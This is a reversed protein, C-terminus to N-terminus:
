KERAEETETFGDILKVAGCICPYHSGFEEKVAVRFKYYKEKRIQKYVDAPNFREGIADQNIEFIDEKGDAEQCYLLYLEQGNKQTIEKEVVQVEVSERDYRTIKWGPEFMLVALIIILAVGLVIYRVADMDIKQEWNM